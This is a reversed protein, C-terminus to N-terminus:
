VAVLMLVTVNQGNSVFALIFLLPSPCWHSSHKLHKEIIFIILTIQACYCSKCPFLPLLMSSNGFLVTIFYKLMDLRGGVVSHPGHIYMPAMYIRLQTHPTLSSMNYLNFCLHEGLNKWVPTIVAVFNEVKQLGLCDWSDRLIGGCVRPDGWDSIEM